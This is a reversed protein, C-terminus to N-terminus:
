ICMLYLVTNTQKLFHIHLYAQSKLKKNNEYKKCKIQSINTKTDNSANSKTNVGGCM